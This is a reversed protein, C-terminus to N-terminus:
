AAERREVTTRYRRVYRENLRETPLVVCVDTTNFQRDVVAGDGIMAGLRLYGKLLPPMAAWATRPQVAGAPLIQMDVYRARVARPRWEPPALHHHYLYSLPQALAPLHTGPLSACGFLATIRHARIYAAIGSWLRDIVARSRYDPDVCFRGVELCEGSRDLLPALDFEGASYFGGRRAAVQSRILRCTGVVSGFVPLIRRRRRAHDIVLLHDCARDFRDIDRRLMKTRLDAAAGMERYFVRYRLAQAAAVDQRRRALGVELDTTTIVAVESKTVALRWRDSPGRM